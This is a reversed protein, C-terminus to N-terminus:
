EGIPVEAAPKEPEAEGEGKGGHLYWGAPCPQSPTANNDDHVIFNGSAVANVCVLGDVDDDAAKLDEADVKPGAPAGGVPSFAAPCPQSPTAENDDKVITKDDGVFRVCVQGNANKDESFWEKRIKIGAAKGVFQWAPPCPQSPTAANADKMLLHDSTTGKVCIGAAKDKDAIAFEEETVVRDLETTVLELSPSAPTFVNPAVTSEGSCALTLPLAVIAVATAIRAPRM